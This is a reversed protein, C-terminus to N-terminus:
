KFILTKIQNENRVRSMAVYIEESTFNTLNIHLYESTYTLGQSQFCNIANAPYIPYNYLYRSTFIGEERYSEVLDGYKGNFLKEYLKFNATIAQLQYNIPHLIYVNLNNDRVIVEQEELNYGIIFLNTGAALSGQTITSIYRLNYSIPLIPAITKEDWYPDHLDQKCTPEILCLKYEVFKVSDPNRLLFNFAISLNLYHVEVNSKVLFIDNLIHNKKLSKKLMNNINTITNLDTSLSINQKQQQISIDSEGTFLLYTTKIYEDDLNDVIELPSNELCVIVKNANKEGDLYYFQLKNINDPDNKPTNVSVTNKKKNNAILSKIDSPKYEKKDIKQYIDTMNKNYRKFLERYIETTNKQQLIINLFDNYTKDVCRINKKLEFMKDFMNTILAANKDGFKADIPPIQNPDGAAVLIIKCCCVSSFRKLIADLLVFIPFDIMSYEDLFILFYRENCNIMADTLENINKSNKNKKKYMKIFIDFFKGFCGSFDINDLLADTTTDLSFNLQSFLNM